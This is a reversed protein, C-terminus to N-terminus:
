VIALCQGGGLEAVEGGSRRHDEAVVVQQRDYRCRSVTGARISIASGMSGNTCPPPLANMRGPRHMRPSFTAARASWWHRQRHGAPCRPERRRAWGNLAPSRTRWNRATGVQRSQRTARRSQGRGADVRDAGVPCPPQLEVSRVGRSTRRPQACPDVEIRRTPVLEAHAATPVYATCTLAVLDVAAAVVGSCAADDEVGGDVWVVSPRGAITSTSVDRTTPMSAVSCTMSAAAYPRNTRAASRCRGGCRLSSASIAAATSAAPARRGRWRRRPCWGEFRSNSPDPRGAASASGLRVPRAPGRPRRRRGRGCRQRRRHRPERHQQWPEVLRADGSHEPPPKSAPLGTPRQGVYKESVGSGLRVRGPRQGPRRALPRGPAAGRDPQPWATSRRGLAQNTM